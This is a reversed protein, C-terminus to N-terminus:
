DSTFYSKPQFEVTMVVKGVADIWFGNAVGFVRVSGIAKGDFSATWTPDYANSFHLMFPKAVDLKVVFRTSDVERVSLVRPVGDVTFGNWSGFSESAKWLWLVDFEALNESLGSVEIEHSGSSM